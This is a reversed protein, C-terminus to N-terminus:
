TEYREIMRSIQSTTQQMNKLAVDKLMADSLSIPGSQICFVATFKDELEGLHFEKTGCLGIVPINYKQAMAAVGYPVKGGSTQADIKGEGTLILTADKVSDSLHILSAITNFGSQIRGGISYIAGGIGGAAGASTINIDIKNTKLITAAVKRAQIEMDDITSPGAGKQAAFIAAFGYNGIYPNNVDALAILDIKKIKKDITSFDISQFDLLPNGNQKDNDNMVAGMGQLFGLGGDSTATGGLTIYIKSVDLESAALVVQGLGYSSVQRAVQDSPDIFQIGIVQASEIIATKEHDIETILYEVKVDIGLPNKAPVTQYEGGYAAFIAAMTGEGGDAIPFNIKQWKNSFGSLAAQNIEESTACGKFSDIAAIVKM